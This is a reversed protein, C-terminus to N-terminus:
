LPSRRPWPLSLTRRNRLSLGAMALSISAPTRAEAIGWEALASSTSSSGTSASAQAVLVRPRRGSSGGDRRQGPAFVAAAFELALEARAAEVGIHDAIRQVGEARGAQLVVPTERGGVRALAGLAPVSGPADPQFQALAPYIAGGDSRREVFELLIEGRESAVHLSALESMRRLCHGLTRFLRSKEFVASEFGRVDAM